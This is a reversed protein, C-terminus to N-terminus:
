NAVYTISIAKQIHILAIKQGKNAELHGLDGNYKTKIYM